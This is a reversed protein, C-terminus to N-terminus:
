LASFDTDARLTISIPVTSGGVSGEHAEFEVTYKQLGPGSVVPIPNSTIKIAPFTVTLTWVLGGAIVQATTYTAVLKLDTLGKYNDFYTFDEYNFVFSGKCTFQGDLLFQRTEAGGSIKHNPIILGNSSTWTLSDLYITADDVQVVVEDMQFPQTTPDTFASTSGETGFKGGGNIQVNLMQDEDAIGQTWVMENVMLGSVLMENAGGISLATSLSQSVALGPEFVNDYVGSDPSSVSPTDYMAFLFYGIHDPYCNFRISGPTWQNGSLPKQPFRSGRLESARPKMINIPKFDGEKIPLSRSPTDGAGWSSENIYKFYSLAGQRVTM